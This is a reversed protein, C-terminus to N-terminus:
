IEQKKYEEVKFIISYKIDADSCIWSNIKDPIRIKRNRQQSKSMNHEKNM